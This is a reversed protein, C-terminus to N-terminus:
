EIVIKKNTLNRHEDLIQLFYIGNILEGRKLIFEKGNFNHSRIEKGFLDIIKITTNKQEESFSLTTESTLPNPYVLPQYVTHENLGTTNPISQNQFWAMGGPGGFSATLIDQDGDSDIDEVRVFVPYNIATTVVQYKSSDFVNGGQNWFCRVAGKNNGRVYMSAVLDKQGDSNIDAAFISTVVYNTDVVLLNHITFTGKGNSKYWKMINDSNPFYTSSPYLIDVNNDADLDCLSMYYYGFKLLSDITKPANFGGNTNNQYFVIKNNNTYQAIDEFSDGDFDHSITSYGFLSLKTGVSDFVGKTNNFIRGSAVIEPYDDNNVDVTNIGFFEGGIHSAVTRTFNQSGDNIFALANQGYYNDAAFDLHGDNNFDALAISESYYLNNRGANWIQKAPSFYGNGMNQYWVISTDSSRNVMLIDKKGDRDLDVIQTNASAQRSLTFHKFSVQAEVHYDLAYFVFVILAYFIKM